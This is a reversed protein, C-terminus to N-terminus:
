GQAELDAEKRELIMYKIFQDSAKVLSAQTEKTFYVTGIKGSADVTIPYYMKMDKTICILGILKYKTNLVIGMKEKIDKTLFELTLDRKPDILTTSLNKVDIVLISPIWFNAIKNRFYTLNMISSTSKQFAIRFFFDFFNTPNSKIAGKDLMSQKDSDAEESDAEDQIICAITLESGKGDFEDESSLSKYVQRITENSSTCKHKSIIEGGKSKVFVLDELKTKLKFKGPEMRKKAAHRGVIFSYLDGVTAEKNNSMFLDIQKSINNISTVRYEKSLVLVKVASRLDPFKERFSFLLQWKGAMEEESLTEYISKWYYTSSILNFGIHIWDYDNIDFSSASTLKYIADSFDPYKFHKADEESIGHFDIKSIMSQHSLTEVKPDPLVAHITRAITTLKFDKENVEIVGVSLQNTLDFRSFEGLFEKVEVNQNFSKAFDTPDIKKMKNILFFRFRELAKEIPEDPQYHEPFELCSFRFMQETFTSQLENAFLKPLTAAKSGVFKLADAEKPVATHEAVAIESALINLLLASFTHQDSATSQALCDKVFEQAISLVSKSAADEEVGQTQYKLSCMRISYALQNLFDKLRDTANDGKFGLKLKSLTADKKHTSSNIQNIFEDFYKGEPSAKIAEVVDSDSATTQVRELRTLVFLLCDAACDFGNFDGQESQFHYANSSRGKIPQAQVTTTKNTPNSVTSKSGGANIDGVTKNSSKFSSSGAAKTPTSTM